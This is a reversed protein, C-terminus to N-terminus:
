RAAIMGPIGPGALITYGALGDARDTVGWANRGTVHVGAPRATVPAAPASQMARFKARAAQDAASQTGNLLNEIWTDYDEM